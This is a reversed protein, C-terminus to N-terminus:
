AVPVELQITEELEHVQRISHKRLLSRPGTTQDGYELNLAAQIQEPDGVLVYHFAGDQYRVDVVDALDKWREDKAAEERISIRLSDEAQAIMSSVYSEVEDAWNLVMGIVSLNGKLVGSAAGTTVHTTPAMLM